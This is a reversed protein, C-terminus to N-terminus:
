LPKRAELFVNCGTPESIVQCDDKAAQEPAMAAMGKADRHILFWEYIFEMINRIPNIPDFNTVILVGGPRLFNYLYTNLQKCVRDGLYDYLGSCYIVDHKEGEGITRSSEKLLYYVSKQITRIAARRGHQARIQELRASTHALTQPNFDLLTFQAHTSMPNQVLCDQVERAPGCGLSFFRPKEGVNMVRMGEEAFRRTFYYARNRVSHAPPTDLIFKHLLKAFLTNGELRNRIIMDIMEYDGAYGLPKVFIRHMFPSCMILPHLHRRCYQRHTEILEPSVKVAAMEFQEFLADMAPRFPIADLIRQELELRPGPPTKELSAELQDLWQRLHTLYDELEFVAEKFESNIRSNGQWNNLFSSYARPMSKDLDHELSTKTDNIPQALAAVHVFSSGTSIISQVTANGEYVVSDGALIKFNSLVESARLPEDAGFTEFTAEASRVRLLKAKM